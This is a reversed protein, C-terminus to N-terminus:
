GARSRDRHVPHRKRNRRRWRRRPGGGFARQWLAHGIVAVPAESPVTDSPAILRGAFPRVGLTAFFNGSVAMTRVREAAEGVRVLTAADERFASLTAFARADAKLTEYDPLSTSGYPGSSFDSTYVSVLTGPDHVGAPPSLLLANVFSFVASNAGIATALTLLAVATFGPAKAFARFAYRIDQLTTEVVRTRLSSRAM